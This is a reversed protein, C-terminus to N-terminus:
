NEEAGAADISAVEMYVPEDVLLSTSSAAAAASIPGAGDAKADDTFAVLEIDEPKAGPFGLKAATAAQPDVIADTNKQVHNDANPHLHKRTVAQASPPTRFGDQGWPAQRGFKASVTIMDNGLKTSPVDSLSTIKLGIGHKGIATDRTYVRKFDTTLKDHLAPSIHYVTKGDTQIVHGQEGLYGPNKELQDALFAHVINPTRTKPDAAHVNWVESGTTKDRAKFSGAGINHYDFGAWKPSTRSLIKETTIKNAGNLEAATLGHDPIIDHPGSVTTTGIINGHHAAYSQGSSDGSLVETHNLKIGTPIIANTESDRTDTAFLTFAFPRDNASSTITVDKTFGHLDRDQVGAAIAVVDPGKIISRTAGEHALDSTDIHWTLTAAKNGQDVISPHVQTTM